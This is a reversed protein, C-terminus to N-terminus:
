EEADEGLEEDRAATAESLAEHAEENDPDALARMLLQEYELQERLGAPVKRARPAM